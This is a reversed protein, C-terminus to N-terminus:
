RRDITGGSVMMLVILEEELGPLLGSPIAVETSLYAKNQISTQTGFFGTETGDAARHAIHRASSGTTSWIEIWGSCHSEFKEPLEKTKHGM